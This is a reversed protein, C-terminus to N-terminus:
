RPVRCASPLVITPVLGEQLPRGFQPQLAVMSFYLRRFLAALPNDPAGREPLIDQVIPANRRLLDGTEM